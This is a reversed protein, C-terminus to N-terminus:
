NYRGLLRDEDSLILHWDTRYSFLDEYKYVVDPKCVTKM